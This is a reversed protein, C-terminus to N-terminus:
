KGICFDKFISDLLNENTIEGTIEGLFFLARKIDISLFEGSIKNNIGKEIDNISELTNVLSEFHRQNILVIENNIEKWIEIKKGILKLLNDIGKNNKASINLIDINETTKINLTNKNIDNKNGLIIIESGDAKKDRIKNLEKEIEQPNFSTKDVLYLIFASEHIKEYTKSIGIKEIKDNTKRLGATDIFRFKYGNMIVIEEISDRTTGKIDSVIAREENILTNLLTSKGSNPNGVIAIPIGNKIANGFKFSEILKAVTSSINGILKLLEKRDAFEVDEESFDLELEILSAFKIVKKRLKKIETSFGGKMQQMALNHAKENDSSILEAVAEAQSLDLKNNLFARLTFEGKKALRCGNKILLQIILEQIYTSGHCSIEVTNEGTYSKPAKFITILVEDIIKKTDFIEGFIVQKSKKTSLKKKNYSKFIKDSIQIADKGSIRIVSIAGQGKATSVSCITDFNM